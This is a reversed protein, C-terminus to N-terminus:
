IFIFHIDNESDYVMGSTPNEKDPYLLWFIESHEMIEDIVFPTVDAFQEFQEKTVSVANDDWKTLEALTVTTYNTVETCTAWFQLKRTKM